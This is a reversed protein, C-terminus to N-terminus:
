NRKWIDKQIQKVIDGLQTYIGQFSTNLSAGSYHRDDSNSNSSVIIRHLDTADKAIKDWKSRILECKFKADDESLGQQKYLEKQLSLYEEVNLRFGPRDGDLDFYASDIFTQTTFGSTPKIDGDEDFNFAADSSAVNAKLKYEKKLEQIKDYITAQRDVQLSYLIALSKDLPVSSLEELLAEFSYLKNNYIYKIVELIAPINQTM